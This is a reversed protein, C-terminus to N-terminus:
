DLSAAPPATISLDRAMQVGDGFMVGTAAFGLREYLRRAITNTQAVEISLRRRGRHRALDMAWLIAATGYGKKQHQLGVMLRWILISEPEEHPLIDDCKSLDFLGLLGVIGGDAWLTFVDAADDYAAEALTVANRAVFGHQVDTLELDFLASLDHKTVSRVSLTM